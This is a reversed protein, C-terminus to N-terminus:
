PLRREVDAAIALASTLGPSEIGFLNVLGPVGHEGPGDIRFDGGAIKPRCGAYDPRLTGDPLGPWYQRVAMYFADMRRDDVAYDINEPDVHALWEVDPGFRMRGALDLTLHIGLGGPEPVPYILRRFAPKASCSFYTGKALSLPPVHEPGLGEVLGAVSQANLGASNVLRGAVITFPDPGGVDVAFGQRERRIAMVPAEVAIIGEGAEIEDRLASMLGHCDVIGTEPSLLAGVSSLAPELAEAERRTLLRLSEVGNETGTQCIAEVTGLQGADTAVILKGCRRHAVGRTRVYDYLLRRGEVCFRQKVSGTPYYMGGHIVESNRSSTEQGVKAHRELVAVTRGARALASGCALGVVGGGVVIADFVYM